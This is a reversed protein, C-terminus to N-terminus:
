DPFDPVVRSDVSNWPIPRLLESQNEKQICAIPVSTFGFMQVHEGPDKKARCYSLYWFTMHDIKKKFIM